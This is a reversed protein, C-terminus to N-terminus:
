TYNEYTRIYLSKKHMVTSHERGQLARPWLRTNETKENVFHSGRSIQFTWAYLCSKNHLNTGAKLAIKVLVYTSLKLQNHIRLPMKLKPQSTTWHDKHVYMRIYTHIYAHIYAHVYTRVYTHLVYTRIYTHMYTHTYTRVYM